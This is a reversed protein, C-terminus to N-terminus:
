GPAAAERTRSRTGLAMLLRYVAVIARNHWAHLTRTAISTIYREATTLDEAFQAQKMVGTKAAAHVRFLALDADMHALEFHRGLRLWYDYDMTYYLDERFLGVVDAAGRRWFTAPQSIYNLIQLVGYSHTTLWLNKYLTFVRQTERGRVDVMRCKGTVWAAAPHTAFFGAVKRLAGPAYLDDANLYTLVDGTAMGLGKNIAHSQGRDPESIWRIRDGYARLVDVTGDTSGGDVVVYELNPYDQGLVSMITESIFPGSNYSPTVVSIRPRSEGAQLVPDARLRRTEM